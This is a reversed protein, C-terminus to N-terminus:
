TTAESNHRSEFLPLQDLELQTRIQGKGAEKARYQAEDARALLDDISNDEGRLQGVGASFSLPPIMPDLRESYASLAKRLKNAVRRGGELNTEPLLISFEDGGIRALLDASRLVARMSIAAGRLIEDGFLHGFRDNIAKFGDLDIYILSLPRRYRRARTFERELQGILHRRNALSTLPDTLAMNTLQETQTNLRSITRVIHGRLTHLMAALGLYAIAQTIIFILSPVNDFFRSQGSLISQGRLWGLILLTFSLVAYPYASPGGVVAGVSMIALAFGASLLFLHEPSVFIALSTVVILTLALLSGAAIFNQQKILRYGFAVILLLVGISILDLVLGLDIKIAILRSFAISTLLWAILLIHFVKTEAPAIQARYRRLEPNYIPFVATHLRKIVPLSELM